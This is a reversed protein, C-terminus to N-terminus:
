VQIQFGLNQYEIEFKIKHMESQTWRPKLKGNKCEITSPKRPTRGLKREKANWRKNRKRENGRAENEREREKIGPPTKKEKWRTQRRSTDAMKNQLRRRADAPPPWRTQRGYKIGVDAPAKKKTETKSYPPWPPQDTLRSAEWWPSGPKIGPVIGNTPPNERSDGTEGARESEVTEDTTKKTFEEFPYPCSFKATQLFGYALSRLGISKRTESVQENAAQGLSYLIIRVSFHNQLGKNGEFSSMVRDRVRSSEGDLLVYPRRGPEKDPPGGVDKSVRRSGGDEAESDRVSKTCRWTHATTMIEAKSVNHVPPLTSMKRRSVRTPLTGLALCCEGLSPSELQSVTMGPCSIFHSGLISRRFRSYGSFVRPCAADDLVIGVRAFIRSNVRRLDFGSRRSPLRAGKDHFDNACFHESQQCGAIYPEEEKSSEKGWPPQAILVSAEWWPSGTEIEQRTVLNECTPTTGSTATPRRIKEPIERKVLGGSKRMHSGYHVDGNASPNQRCVGGGGARVNRLQEM